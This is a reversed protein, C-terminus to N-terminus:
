LVIKRKLYSRGHGSKLFKERREAVKKDEFEESCVLEVPRNQRTWQSSGSRHQRLREEPCKSTLGVYQKGNKLSRLVYVYFM